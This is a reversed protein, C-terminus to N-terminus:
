SIRLIAGQAEAEKKMRVYTAHVRAEQPSIVVYRKGSAGKNGSEETPDTIIPNVPPSDRLRGPFVAALLKRYTADKERFEEAAHRFVNFRESSLVDDVVVPRGGSEQIASTFCHLIKRSAETSYLMSRATDADFVVNAQAVHQEELLDAKLKEAQEASIELQPARGLQPRAVVKWVRNM